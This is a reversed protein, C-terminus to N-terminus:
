DHEWTVKFAEGNSSLPGPQMRVTTKNKTKCIIEHPGNHATFSSIPEDTGGASAESGSFKVASFDPLKALSCGPDCVEPSEAIWEASSDELGSASKTISFTWGASSSISLTYSTGTRHVEATLTDGPNVPYKTSSINVSDAPYMEYWAYYKPTTGRCDSDTGLQEVSNSSYGDIGVWFSAFLHASSTCTVSPEKWSGRVDTFPSDAQVAYGSWNTATVENHFEGFLSAPTRVALLNATTTAAVTSTPIMIAVASLGVISLVRRM